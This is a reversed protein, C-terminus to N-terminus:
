KDEKDCKCKEEGDTVVPSRTCGFGDYYPCGRCSDKNMEDQKKACFDFFKEMDLPMLANYRHIHNVSCFEEWLSKIKRWNM